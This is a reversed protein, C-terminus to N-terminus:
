IVFTHHIRTLKITYWCVHTCSISVCFSFLSFHSLPFIYLKSVLTQAHHRHITDTHPTQMTDTCPTQANAAPSWFPRGILSVPERHSSCKEKEEAGAVAVLLVFLVFSLRLSEHRLSQMEQVFFTKRKFFAIDPNLAQRAM